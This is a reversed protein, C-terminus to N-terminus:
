PTSVAILDKVKQVLVEPTLPKEMYEDIPLFYPHQTPNPFALGSKGKLDSLMILPIKAFPAFEQTRRLKRAFLIGDGRQNILLDVLVINPVSEKVKVLGEECSSATIVKFGNSELAERTSQVFDQDEDLLLIRTKKM